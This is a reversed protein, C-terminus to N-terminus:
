KKPACGFASYAEIVLKKIDECMGSVAGKKVEVLKYTEDQGGDVMYGFVAIGQITGDKAILRGIQTDAGYMPWAVSLEGTSPDGDHLRTTFKADVTPAGDHVWDGSPSRLGPCYTAALIFPVDSPWTVSFRIDTAVTITVLESNAGTATLGVSNNLSSRETVTWGTQGLQTAFWDAYRRADAALPQPEAYSTWGNECELAHELRKPTGLDPHIPYGPFGGPATAPAAGVVPDTSSAEGKVSCSTIWLSALVVAALVQMSRTNCRM